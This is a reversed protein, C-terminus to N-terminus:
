LPDEYTSAIIFFPIALLVLVLAALVREIKGYDLGSCAVSTYFYCMIDTVMLCLPAVLILAPILFLIYILRRM